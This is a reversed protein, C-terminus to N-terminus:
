FRLGRRRVRRPEATESELITTRAPACQGLRLQDHELAGVLPVPYVRHIEDRAPLLGGSQDGPMRTRGHQQERLIAFVRDPHRVIERVAPLETARYVGKRAM